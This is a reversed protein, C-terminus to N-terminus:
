SNAIVAYYVFPHGDRDLFYLVGTAGSYGSEKISVLISNRILSEGCASGIKNADITGKAPKGNTAWHIGLDAGQFSAFAGVWWSRDTAPLESAYRGSQYHAALTKSGRIAAPTFPELGANNPCAALASAASRRPAMYLTAPFGPAGIVPLTRSLPTHIPVVETKGDTAIRVLVSGRGWGNGQANDVYIVGSTTVAIGNEQFGSHGWNLGEVKEPVVDHYPKVSMGQSAILDIEGEHTGVLVNGNPTTALQTAYADGLNTIKGSPSLQYIVRPGNNVIDLNGNADFAISEPSMVITSATPNTPENIIAGRSGAVWALTGQPTVREINSYTSVYIAGSPSVAVGNLQCGTGGRQLPVSVVTQIIGDPNVSRLRCNDEDVLYVVGSPAVAVGSEAFYGFDLEAARAPGGDGSFGVRGNGAFVSLTGNPALQLIQDRSPDLILVDGNPKAALTTPQILDPSHTPVFTKSATSIGERSTISSATGGGRPVTSRLGGGVVVALLGAVLVVCVILSIVLRRRRTKARAEKILLEIADSDELPADHNTPTIIM